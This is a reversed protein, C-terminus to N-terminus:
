VYNDEEIQEQIRNEFFDPCPSKYIKNWKKEIHPYMADCVDSIVMDSYDEDKRCKWNDPIALFDQNLFLKMEKSLFCHKCVFEHKNNIMKLEYKYVTPYDYTDAEYYRELFSVFDKAEFKDIEDVNANYLAYFYNLLKYKKKQAQNVDKHYQSFFGYRLLLFISDEENIILGSKYCRWFVDKNGSYLAITCPSEDFFLNEKGRYSVPIPADFRLCGEALINIINNRKTETYQRKEALLSSKLGSLKKETEEIERNIQFIKGNIPSLGMEMKEFYDSLSNMIDKTLFKYEWRNGNLIDELSSIESVMFKNPSYRNLEEVVKTSDDSIRWDEFCGLTGHGGGQYYYEYQSNVIDAQHSVWNDSNNFDKISAYNHYSIIEEYARLVFAENYTMKFSQDSLVYLHSNSDCEDHGGDSNHVHYLKSQVCIVTLIKIM